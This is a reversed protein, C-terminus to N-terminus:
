LFKFINELHNFITYKKIIVQQNKIMNLYDIKSLSLVKIIQSLISGSINYPGLIDDFKKINTFGLQGYSINKFMRCPLYNIQEQFAGGYAPAIRSRRILFLNLRDPIFKLNIFKLDNKSLVSKLEKIQELNGQNLNNNWISGVWFVLRNNNFIPDKFENPLLDSGWPQYLIRNKEDFHVAEYIKQYNEANNNYVQLKLTKEKNLNDLFIDQFNHLCYYVDDRIPLNYSELGNKSPIVRGVVEASIILDNAKIFKRSNPHDELWIVPANIKKLTKYYSSFIYHHTHIQHKLGWLVVRKFKNIHM